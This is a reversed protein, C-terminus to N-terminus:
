TIKDLWDEHWLFYCSHDCITDSDEIKGNCILDELIYIPARLKFMRVRKEDFINKVIKIIKFEGECYNYMQTMFLCGDRFGFQDLNNLISEKSKVRVIEEIKFNYYMKKINM